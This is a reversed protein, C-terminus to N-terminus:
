AHGRELRGAIEQAWPQGVARLAAASAGHDYAIRRLEVGDDHVLAYAARVDGDLPLGVSGPNLLEIGDPGPRTFQLHTHGFVLRREQVGAANQADHDDHTPLFSTMDSRMSGHVVRMGVGDPATVTVQADLDGLRRVVGADLADLAFAAAGRVLETDPEDAAPHTALWRDWNGRIWTTADQDLADLAAVTEAPWAGFAAYDGGLVYATAGQARADALVAELAPLNGHVDYLLALPGPM